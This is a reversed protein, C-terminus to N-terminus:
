ALPILKVDLSRSVTVIHNDPVDIWQVGDAKPSSALAVAKLMRHPRVRPDTEKTTRDIGCVPCDALGELLAYSLPKGRRVAAVVRGNSLVATTQPLPQGSERARGDLRSLTKALADAVVKPEIDLLDLMRSDAHIHGLTALFALEADSPGVMGRQLFVPLEALVKAREGLPLIRGTGGFIWNRFRYPETDEERFGGPGSGHSAAVFLESKVDTALGELTAEGTAPRKRLLVKGNEFYGVGLVKGARVGLDVAPALRHLQCRLLAPDSQLLAFLQAM